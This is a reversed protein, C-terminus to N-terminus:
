KSNIRCVQICGFDPLVNTQGGNPKKYTHGERIKECNPEGILVGSSRKCEQELGEKAWQLSPANKSISILQEIKLSLLEKVKSSIVFQCKKNYAGDELTSQRKLSLEDVASNLDSM